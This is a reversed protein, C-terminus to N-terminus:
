VADIITWGVPIGNDGTTWINSGTAKIFTGTGTGANRVWYSTCYNDYMSTALCEIRNLMSGGYFMSNYCSEVLHASPLKPSKTIKSCNYFM